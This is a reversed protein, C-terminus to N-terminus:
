KSIYTKSLITNVEDNFITKKFKKNKERFQTPTSSVLRKFSRTFVDICKFGTRESIDSITLSTLNLLEMSYNIRLRTLYNGPSIGIEIKFCKSIYSRDFGIQDCTDWINIKDKFNEKLFLLMKKSGTSLEHRIEVPSKFSILNEHALGAIVKYAISDLMLSNYLSNEKYIICEKFLSYFFNPDKVKFIKNEGYFGLKNLYKEVGKGTFSFFVYKWPHHIDAQYTNIEGPIIIFGYGAKLNWRIGQSIFTGQGSLIFHIILDRRIAPGYTHGSITQSIGANSLSIKENKMNQNNFINIIKQM